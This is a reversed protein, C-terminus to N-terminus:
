FVWVCGKPMAKIPDSPKLTSFRDGRLNDKRIRSAQGDILHSLSTSNNGVPNRAASNARIVGHCAADGCRLAADVIAANSVPNPFPLNLALLVM